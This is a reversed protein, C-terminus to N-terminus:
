KPILNSHFIHNYSMSECLVNNAYIAYQKDNNENELVFHYYYLKHIKNLKHKVDIETINQFLSCHNAKIKTFNDITENTPYEDTNYKENLLNDTLENFLISHGSTLLLDENPIDKNIKNKKLIKTHKMYNAKSSYNYGIFSIKKYENNSTKVLDGINLNEVFEEIEENNKKIKIMTGKIFCTGGFNDEFYNLIVQNENVEKDTKADFRYIWVMIGAYLIWKRLEMYNLTNDVINNMVFQNTTGDWLVVNGDTADTAKGVIIKEFSIGYSNIQLVSTLQLPDYIFISEFDYYTDGQNYFQTLYFDIFSGYFEEIKIYIEQFIGNYFYPTQPAHSVLIVPKTTQTTTTKLYKSLNGLYDLMLNFDDNNVSSNIHEIDLDIYTLSTITTYYLLENGLIEPNTYISNSKLFGLLGNNVDFTTAGGFSMGFIIGYESAKNILITREDATFNFWNLVTDYYTLTYITNPDNSGTYYLTIFEFLIHTIGSSGALDIFDFLQDYTVYYGVYCIEKWSM